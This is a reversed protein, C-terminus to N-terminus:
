GVRECDDDFEEWWEIDQRDPDPDPLTADEPEGPGHVLVTVTARGLPLHDPLQLCIYRDAAVLVETRYQTV